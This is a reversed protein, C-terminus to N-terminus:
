REEEVVILRTMKSSACKPCLTGLIGDNPSDTLAGCKECEYIKRVLGNSDYLRESVKGLIYKEKIIRATIGNSTILYKRKKTKIIKGSIIIFKEKCEESRIHYKVSDGVKYKPKNREKIKFLKM